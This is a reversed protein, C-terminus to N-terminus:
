VRASDWPEGAIDAIHMAVHVVATMNIVGALPGHIGGASTIVRSFLEDGAQEVAAITAARNKEFEAILDAVSADARKAVQRENYDIIMPTSPQDARVQGGTDRRGVSPAAEASPPAAKALDILRAYAWEISAVHALIQRANWGNEYRGQEFKDAPFSRLRALAEDGSRRLQALLEQKTPVAPQTTM